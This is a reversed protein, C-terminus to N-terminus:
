KIVKQKLQVIYESYEYMNQFEERDKLIYRIGIYHEEM